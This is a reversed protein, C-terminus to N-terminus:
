EKGEQSERLAAREVARQWYKGERWKVRNCDRCHGRFYDERMSYFQAMDAVMMRHYNRLLCLFFRFPRMM